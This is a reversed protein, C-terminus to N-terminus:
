VFFAYWCIQGSKDNISAVMTFLLNHHVCHCRLDGDFYDNVSTWAGGGGDTTVYERWRLRRCKVALLVLGLEKPMSQDGLEPVHRDVISLQWIAGHGGNIDIFSLFAYLSISCPLSISSRLLSISLSTSPFPLASSVVSSLEGAFITFGHEPPRPSFVRSPSSQAVKAWDVNKNKKKFQPYFIRITGWKTLPFTGKARRFFSTKVIIIGNICVQCKIPYDFFYLLKVIMGKHAWNEFTIPNFTIM